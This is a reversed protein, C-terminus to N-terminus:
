LQHNRCCSADVDTTAATAAVGYEAQAGCVVAHMNFQSRIL